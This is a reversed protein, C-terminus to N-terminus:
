FTLILMKNYKMVYGDVWYDRKNKTDFNCIATGKGGLYAHM